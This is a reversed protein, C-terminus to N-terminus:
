QEMYYRVAQHSHKDVFVTTDGGASGQPLLFIVAWQKGDDRVTVRRGEVARSLGQSAMYANAAEVAQHEPSSIPSCSVALALCVLFAARM